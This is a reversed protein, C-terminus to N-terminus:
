QLPHVTALTLQLATLILVIFQHQHTFHMAYNLLDNTAIQLFGVLHYLQVPL